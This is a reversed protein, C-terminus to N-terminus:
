TKQKLSVVVWEGERAAQVTIPGAPLMAQHSAGPASDLSNIADLVVELLKQEKLAEIIHRGELADPPSGFFAGAEPEARVVIFNSDTWFRAEAGGAGHAEPPASAAGPTAEPSTRVPAGGGGEPRRGPQAFGTSPQKRMPEPEVARPTRGVSPPAAPESREILRNISVAVESLESFGQALPVERADGKVVAEVDDKLNALPELTFRKGLVISVVVGLLLVLFGLFMVAVSFSGSASAAEYVLVAVGARRGQHQVPAVMVYDGSRRRGLYFTRIEETKADIGEIATLTEDIRASPALVKGTLDLLLAEKVREERTVQSVDLDRARGEGVALSNTAALLELLVRGRRLSEERLANGLTRVLPLALVLYVVLAVGFTVLANRSTWSSTRAPTPVETAGDERTAPAASRPTVPAPPQPTRLATEPLRGTDNAPKAKASEPRFVLTGTDPKPQGRAILVTKDNEPEPAPPPPAPPPPAAARPPAGKSKSVIVTADEDAKEEEYVYTIVISGMRVIDGPKLDAENTKKANVWSGNRSGLDRFRVGAASPEFTGHKRSIAPDDFSLACAPDRGLTVPELGLEHRVIRDGHKIVLRKL